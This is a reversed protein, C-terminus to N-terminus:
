PNTENIRVFGNARVLERIEPLFAQIDVRQTSAAEFSRFGPAGEPLGNLTPPSFQTPECRPRSPRALSLGVSDSAPVACPRALMLSSVLLATVM